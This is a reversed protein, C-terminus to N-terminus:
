KLKLFDNQPIMEEYTSIHNLIENYACIEEVTDANVSCMFKPRLPYKGLEQDYDHLVEVIKIKMRLGFDESLLFYRGALTDHGTVPM